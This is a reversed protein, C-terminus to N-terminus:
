SLDGAVKKGNIIIKAKVTIVAEFYVEVLSDKGDALPTTFTPQGPNAILSRNTARLVGDVYLAAGRFWSNTVRIQHSGWDVSWEKM